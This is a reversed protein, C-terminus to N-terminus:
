VSCDEFTKNKRRETFLCVTLRCVNGLMINGDNVGLTKMLTLFVFKLKAAFTKIKQQNHFNM